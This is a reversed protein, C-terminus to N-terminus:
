KFIYMLLPPIIMISGVISSAILNKKDINLVSKKRDKDVPSILIETYKIETIEEKPKSLKDSTNISNELAKVRLEREKIFELEKLEQRLREREQKQKELDKEDKIIQEKLKDIKNYVHNVIINSMESLRSYFEPTLNQILVTNDYNIITFALRIILDDKYASGVNFFDIQNFVEENKIKISESLQQISELNPKYVLSTVSPSIMILHKSGIILNNLHHPKLKNISRINLKQDLSNRSMVPLLELRNYHHNGTTILSLEKVVNSVNIFLRSLKHELANVLIFHLGEDYIKLVDTTTKHGLLGHTKIYYSPYAQIILDELTPFRLNPYATNEVYKKSCYNELLNDLFANVFNTDNKLAPTAHTTHLVINSM